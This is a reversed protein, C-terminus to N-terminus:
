LCVIWSCSVWFGSYERWFGGCVWLVGGWFGWCLMRLVQIVFGFRFAFGSFGSARSVWLGSVVVIVPVLVILGAFLVWVALVM